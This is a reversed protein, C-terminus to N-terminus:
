GERKGEPPAPLTSERDTPPGDDDRALTLALLSEGLSRAEETTLAVEYADGDEPTLRLHLAVGNEHAVEYVNVAFRTRRPATKETSDCLSGDVASLEIM